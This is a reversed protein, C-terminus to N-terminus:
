RELKFNADTAPRVPVNAVKWGTRYMWETMKKLKGIDIHEADDQPTHYDPHLLTTYMLSPIGMRAYPLHDSRFYWGEVHSTKDWMTDLKFRPGERNAEMAMNVLELSSRHPPQVGLLAASDPHNRGIMDGNLVAVISKIPVAPHAVFWRSGVLGREEAGHIVFIVSRKGPNKKFARAIALMAVDVSANDDAGHFVSDGKITNRVGHADQHGSYLLYEKSLAQDSGNIKGIINVSPYDFHEIVSNADLTATDQQLWTKLISHVWLVPVKNTVSANPGGEVDYTGRKFNEIADDWGNEAMEDAIFIIAAAGKEMLTTGYKNMISRTYRWTPLSIDNNIGKPNAEVAVIKGKIHLTDMNIQAANGLYMVPGTVHQHAMQSVAVDEWLRLLHHNIYFQSGSSVRNRWMNFFQLYTGDDGGPILGIKRFQDSLWVSAKLEDITGASRGRFHADSLDYIDKKIEDAKISSLAPPINGNNRLQAQISLSLCIVFGLVGIKKM